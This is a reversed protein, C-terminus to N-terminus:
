ADCDTSACIAATTLTTCVELQAVATCSTSYGSVTLLAQASADSVARAAAEVAATGLALGIFIRFPEVCQISVLLTITILSVGGEGTTFFAEEVGDGHHVDIDLYL